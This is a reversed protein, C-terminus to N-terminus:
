GRGLELGRIRDMSDDLATLMIIPVASRARISQCVQWGDLGPMMVDLVVVDPQEVLAKSLGTHGDGAVSVRYGAREFSSMLPGTIMPDDDVLLIHAM